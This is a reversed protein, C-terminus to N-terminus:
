RVIPRYLRTDLSFITSQLPLVGLLARVVQMDPYSLPLYKALIREFFTCLLDNNRGSKMYEDRQAFCLLCGCEERGDCENHKTPFWFVPKVHTCSQGYERVNPLGIRKGFCLFIALLGYSRLIYM